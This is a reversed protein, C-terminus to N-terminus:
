DTYNAETCVEIECSSVPDYLWPLKEWELVEPSIYRIRVKAYYPESVPSEQPRRTTSVPTQLPSSQAQAQQSLSTAASAPAEPPQGTVTAADVSASHKHLQTKLNQSTTSDPEVLLSVANRKPDRPKFSGASVMSDNDSSQSSVVNVSSISHNHLDGGVEQAPKERNKSSAPVGVYNTPFIGSEDGCSGRWWYMHVSEIVRIKDGAKFTLERPDKVEPQYDYLAIVYEFESADADMDLPVIEPDRSIRINDESDPISEARPPRYYDRVSMSPDQQDFHNSTFADSVLEDHSLLPKRRPVSAKQRDLAAMAALGFAAEADFDDM